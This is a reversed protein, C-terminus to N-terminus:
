HQSTICTAASVAIKDVVDYQFWCWCLGWWAWIEIAAPAPPMTISAAELIAM